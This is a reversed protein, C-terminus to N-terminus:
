SVPDVGVESVAHPDTDTLAHAGSRQEVAMQREVERRRELERNVLLLVQICLARLGANYSAMGRVLTNYIVVAPIAAVLGLATALLAEAIGPAVVALNTTQSEAIGIFSNMIGWVTGMLGVFPATSGISALVGIGQGIDRASAAVRRELRLRIREPLGANGPLEASQQLEDRVEQLLEAAPGPNRGLLEWADELRVSRHLTALDRRLRLRESLLEWAKALCVTWSLVSAGVLGLMIVQVVPGANLYMDLPSLDGHVALALNM